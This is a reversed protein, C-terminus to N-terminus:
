WHLKAILRVAVVVGYGSLVVAVVVIFGRTLLRHLGELKPSPEPSEPDRQSM